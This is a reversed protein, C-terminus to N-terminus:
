FNFDDEFYNIQTQKKSNSEISKIRNTIIMEGIWPMYPIPKLEMKFINSKENHRIHLLSLLGVKVDFQQEAMYAYINLQLVYRNFDTDEMFQFPPKMFDNRWTEKNQNYSIYKLDLNTKYDYIDLMLKGDANKRSTRLMPLDATGCVEALLHFIMMEPYVKAYPRIIKSLQNTLSQYKSDYDNGKLFNELAKHIETGIGAREKGYREWEDIIQKQVKIVDSAKYYKGTKDLASKAMRLAIEEKAFDNVYTKYLTSVPLFEKGTEWIYQHTEEIFRMRLNDKGFRLKNTLFTKTKEM